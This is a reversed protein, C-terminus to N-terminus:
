TREIECAAAAVPVPTVMEFGSVVECEDVAAAAAEDDCLGEEAPLTTAETPATATAPATARRM